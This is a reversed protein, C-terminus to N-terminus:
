FSALVLSHRENVILTNCLIFIIILLHLIYIRNISLTKTSLLIGILILIILLIILM